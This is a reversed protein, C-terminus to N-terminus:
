GNGYREALPHKFEKKEPIWQFGHDGAIQFRHDLSNNLVGLSIGNPFAVCSTTEREFRACMSCQAAKATGTGANWGFYDLAFPERKPRAAM